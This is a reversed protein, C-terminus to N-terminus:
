AGHATAEKASVDTVRANRKLARHKELKDVLQAILDRQQKVIDVLTSTTWAFTFLGSIAIVPGIDRWPSELAVEGYGLTTYANACFYIADHIHTLLGLHM